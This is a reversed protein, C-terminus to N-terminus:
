RASVRLSRVPVFGPHGIANRQIIDADRRAADYWTAALVLAPMVETPTRIVTKETQALRARIDSNLDAKLRRLALFLGDDSVRRIERDLTTNLTDRLEVLEDWALLEPESAQAAPTTTLAPHAVVPWGTQAASETTVPTALSTVASAAERLVTARLVSAVINRQVTASRTTTSDTKWVGRPALSPTLTIGSLTKIMTSLERQNGALRNSVRWLKQVREVFGQGSPSPLLVSIDGRLLRIADAVARDSQMVVSTISDLMTGVDDLVRTQLFDAMGALSFADFQQSVADDVASCSSVLVSDTATDAQPYSLEGAEVFHLDFRVMRGENSATSVKIQDTVCVIMEGWTPHRLTGPGPKNLAEMLRDRQALCDEGIVYATINPRLAVKGLDESWPKDRNPYEHVQIRRGISTNENDVHFPVGRFSATKLYDTWAM